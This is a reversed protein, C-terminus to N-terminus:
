EADLSHLLEKLKVNDPNLKLSQSIILKAKDILNNKLLIYAYHECILANQDGGYKYAKEINFLADKFNNKLYLVWAYTDLFSPNFPEIEISSQAFNLAKDLNRKDQTLYYAYNNLVYPNHRDIALYKEFYKDSNDIQNDAHYAEALYLYFQLQLDKDDLCYDLGTHLLSISKKYDGLNFYAYGSYFYLLAQNPFYELAENATELILEFRKQSSYINLLAAWLDFNDSNTKLIDIINTEALDFQKEHLLYNIFETQFAPENPYHNILQQYIIIKRDKSIERSNLYKEAVESLENISVDLSGIGKILFPYGDRFNKMGAYLKALGLSLRKSDPFNILGRQYVDMATNPQRMSLYYKALMDVYKVSDPFVAVLKKLELLLLDYRKTQYFINNKLFSINEVVGQEKEISNLISLAKDYDNQKYSIVALKYAYEPNQPYYQYLDNYAAVFANNDDLRSACEAKQLLYWENDPVINLARNIYSMATEYEMKHFYILSLQYLTASSKPQYKLCEEFLKLAEDYNEELKFKLADSYL